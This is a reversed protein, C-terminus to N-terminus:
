ANAGLILGTSGQFVAVAAVTTLLAELAECPGDALGELMAGVHWSWIAREPLFEVELRLQLNAPGAKSWTAGEDDDELLWGQDVLVQAFRSEPSNGISM